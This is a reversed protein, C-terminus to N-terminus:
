RAAPLAPRARTRCVEEARGAILCYFSGCCTDANSRSESRDPRTTLTRGSMSSNPLFLAALSTTNDRTM